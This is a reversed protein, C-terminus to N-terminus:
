SFYRLKKISKEIGELYLVYGHNTVNMEINIYPLLITWIDSM